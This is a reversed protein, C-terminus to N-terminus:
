DHQAADIAQCRLVIAWCCAGALMNLGLMLWGTDAAPLVDWSSLNM